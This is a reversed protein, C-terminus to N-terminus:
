IDIIYKDCAFLKYKHELFGDSIFIDYFDQAHNYEIKTLTGQSQIINDLVYRVKDYNPNDLKFIFYADQEQNTFLFYRNKIKSSFWLAIHTLYQNYDISDMTM